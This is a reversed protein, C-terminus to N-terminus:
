TVLVLKGTVGGKGLLEQARRADALPLRQAVLPKIKGARLLDLLAVLDERFRAPELRMLWQISYPVVRRRGPLLWGGLICLGFIPMSRLRNRRGSSGAVRGSRLSSTIGYAM